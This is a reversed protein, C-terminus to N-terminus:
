VSREPESKHRFQKTRRQQKQGNPFIRHVYGPVVTDPLKEASKM